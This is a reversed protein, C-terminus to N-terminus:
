VFGVHHARGLALGEPFPVAARPFAFPSKPIKPSPQLHRRGSAEPGRDLCFGGGRDGPSSALCGPQLCRWGAPRLCPEGRPVTGTLGWAPPPSEGAGEGSGCARGEPRFSAGGRGAPAGGTAVHRSQGAPSPPLRAGLAEGLPVAAPKCFANGARHLHPPSLLMGWRSGMGM